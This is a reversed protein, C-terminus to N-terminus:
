SLQMAPRHAAELGAARSLTEADLAGSVLRRERGIEARVAEVVLDLDLEGVEDALSGATGPDFDLELERYVPVLADRVRKSDRVVIVGGVHAAGRVVRQGVGALKTRGRANVSHDGPCYEGPVPGIRADAGLARFAAVLIGAMEDFRERVGRRLDPAPRSWAFALTERHFVAARGGALRLVPAFGGTRAAEVARAFGPRTRDLVSFALIPDPRYLRLTEPLRGEAVGQLLARSVAADLFPRGPLAQEVIRIERM